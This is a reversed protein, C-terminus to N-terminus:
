SLELAYLLLTSLKDEDGEGCSDNGEIQKANTMGMTERWQDTKWQDWSYVQASLTSNQTVKKLGSILIGAEVDAKNQGM